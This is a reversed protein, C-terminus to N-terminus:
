PRGRVSEVAELTGRVAREVGYRELKRALAERLRTSGALPAVRELASALAAVDGCAFRHGTEAEDVLDPACGAADSVVVPLGCAMAENVVIGWTESASPLVLVDSAAYSAALESQNRFGLMAIRAGRERARRVIADHLPGAGAYAAVWGAGLRAVADVLDTPRKFGVFRGVFLAVHDISAAGFSRRLADRETAALAARERFRAVDVVHPVFHIRESPVGYHRLYEAHREGPCLFGAFRELMRPYTARKVARKVLGRRTGLHSDGRALVAVGLRRCALLAQWYTKLNWGLVICADFGGLALRAGIEPTDCGFFAQTSPVRARNRLFEHEYGGVLDVDWDFAVGYGAEGQEQSTPRHAYHVRLACARALARLWPAHYQVPHSAVIAVRPTTRVSDRLTACNVTHDTRTSTM